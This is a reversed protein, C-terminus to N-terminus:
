VSGLIRERIQEEGAKGHAVRAPVPVKRRIKGEEGEAGVGSCHLVELYELAMEVDKRCGSGKELSETAEERFWHGDLTKGILGM